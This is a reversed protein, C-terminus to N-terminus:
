PKWLRTEEGPNRSNETDFTSEQINSDSRRVTGNQGRRRAVAACEAWRQSVELNGCGLKKELIEQIKLTLHQNKSIQTLDGVLAM